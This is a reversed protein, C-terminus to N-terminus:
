SSVGIGADDSGPKSRRMRPLLRILNMVSVVDARILRILAFALYYAIATATTAAVLQIVGGLGQLATSASFATLSATATVALVRFAGGYLRRAPFVTIRSLRWISIPWEIAAALAYGAAVGVVGWTSGVVICTVKIAASVLSYRFLYGTLGRSLYVWYGVFALTQFIAGIALLRLIPAVSLWQDGLFVASIPEAASIVLGLVAVLSYGLAIQGRAVFDSFRNDDDRLRSLVPLAVTTLPSRIQNLPTMLLQFGRNYLGLPAAGFRIGILLTDVNNSLYGVLQSAVINWGFRLLGSMPATRRPLRPLWRGFVVVFCLLVVVQTIQQVVLAWYGAGAVAAAIAVILAIVPAVVDTVALKVFQLDRTLNARYQTALGNFIFTSALVQAIPILESEGFLAALVPAGSFVAAALVLGIASNIWFLNDRQVRSLDPAQIAASSLGFDRIIEGVGIIALVMALLGYDEPTLLRALIVVSVVQVAIRTMQAVITVAAGHAALASLGPQGPQRQEGAPEVM